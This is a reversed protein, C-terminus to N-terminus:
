TPQSKGMDVTQETVLSSCFDCFKTELLEYFAALALINCSVEMVTLQFGNKIVNRELSRKWGKQVDLRCSHKVIGGASVANLVKSMQVFGAFSFSNNLCRKIHLKVTLILCFM